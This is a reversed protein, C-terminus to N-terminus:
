FLCFDLFFSIYCKLARSLKRVSMLNFSFNTLSLVSSLLLSPTPFITGSGLVCSQSGNALTVTSTSLQSQFTSFLSSNSTMHDIAGFDIVWESSSSFVFYKNLNSSEVIATILTSPFKLSEQYLHFRALEEAIFQVSQDPAENTSAVHAFQFRRNRSQRKKYDQIVHEPKHCKLARSLKSVSMLNFSFNPLSLIFSLPLSPIPFITDSGLVCSQSGEALTITSTSLQSQFTSCLSSNSTMHDTAEFDIVWEFSLSSVFCKNPNGSEVIATILTSPSKM